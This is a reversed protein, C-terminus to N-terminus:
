QWVFPVCLTCFRPRFESCPIYLSISVLPRVQVVYCDMLLEVTNQHRTPPGFLVQRLPAPFAHWPKDDAHTASSCVQRDLLRSQRCSKRTLFRAFVPPLQTLLLLRTPGASTASSL